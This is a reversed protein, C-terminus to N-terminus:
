RSPSAGPAITAEELTSAMGAQVVWANLQGLDDTTRIAKEVARPVRGFKSRLLNRLIDRATSLAGQQRGEELLAEAGTMFLNEVEKRREDTRVSATIVERLEERESKERDHYVM